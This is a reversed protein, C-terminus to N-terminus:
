LVQTARVGDFHRVHLVLVYTVEYLDVIVLLSHVAEDRFFFYEIQLPEVVSVVVQRGGLHFLLELLHLSINLLGIALEAPSHPLCSMAIM